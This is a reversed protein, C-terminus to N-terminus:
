EDLYKITVNYKKALDKFKQSGEFFLKNSTPIELFYEGELVKNEFGKGYKLSKIAKGKQYKMTLEKLYNEFTESKIKSLTTAKRSVIEKGPIYSDLRKGDVLNVENFQYVLRGKDNFDNGRKFLVKIEDWSLKRGKSVAIDNVENTLDEVLEKDFDGKEIAEKLSKKALGDAGDLQKILVDDVESIIEKGVKEVGDDINGAVKKIGGVGIIVSVLQVADKGVTHNLIYPKNSTYNAKKEEYFKVSADKISELSINKVSTWLATRIKEKTAVDYGLKILQPYETVEEIVGDGVGTFLAPMRVTSTKHSVEDENWYDKPLAAEEWVNSGLDGITRVWEAGNMDKVYFGSTDSVSQTKKGNPGDLENLKETALESMQKEFAAAKQEIKPNKALNPDLKVEATWKNTEKDFKAKATYKGPSNIEFPETNKKQPKIKCPSKATVTAVINGNTDYEFDHAKGSLYKSDIQDATVDLEGEILQYKNENTTEDTFGHIYTLIQKGTPYTNNDLYAEGFTGGIVKHYGSFNSGVIDRPKFAYYDGNPLAFGYLAGNVFSTYDVCYFFIKSDTPLTFIKNAPSLFTTAKTLKYSHATEELGLSKERERAKEAYEKIKTAKAIKEKFCDVDRYDLFLNYPGKKPKIENGDCDKDGALGAYGEAKSKQEEKLEKKEADTLYPSQALADYAKDEEANREAAAKKDAATGKYQDTFEERKKILNIIGAVLGKLDDYIEKVAAIQKENPDYTTEIVGAFLQRETNVQIGSFRVKVNAQGLMPITVYGEGEWGGGSPSVRTIKVPFSGAMILDGQNLAQIPTRNAIAIEPSIMGCNVTRTDNPNGSIELTLIDSYTTQDTGIGINGAVCSSGVRYEYTTGPKLDYLVARNELTNVSYWKSGSLSRERYQLTYGGAPTGNNTPDPTWSITVRGSTVSSNIALPPRCDSQYTFWYIESFGNNRYSDLQEGMPSTSVARVRWAYRKGPILQPEAPGMLLTTPRVTVQYLPQTSHFAAEPAIGTDWLEKLTFEYETNFAGNPSGLNRPTWQFIINQVERSAISEGKVPINLLPPDSLTIYAMSCSKRSLVQGTYVEIAEFCFSYFGEPLKSNQAYMSRTIGSFNLNDVNFYPALDGLSIRQPIGADLTITPYYVGDKSQLKANQGEIYMRLRVSLVPKQLDTNTLVIALRETTGNYYDSTNLSYPPVLVPTVQVPYIQAQGNLGLALLGFITILYFAFPKLNLTFGMAQFHLALRGLLSAKQMNEPAVNRKQLQSLCGSQPSGVGSETSGVVFKNKDRKIM